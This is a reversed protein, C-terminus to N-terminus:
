LKVGLQNALERLEVEKELNRETKTHTHYYFKTGKKLDNVHEMLLIAIIHSVPVNQELAQKQLYRYEEEPLRLSTKIASM